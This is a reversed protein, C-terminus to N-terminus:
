IDRAPNGAVKSAGPISRVVNSGLGVLSLKGITVGNIVSTGSGIYCNEEINTNGALTVNSGVLCYDRVNSDHHIVTNPLICIHNGLICNSTLVVGAMILCNFGIKSLVSVNASPHIVTAFRENKLGLGSIIESRRSYSQPNGPVALVMASKYKEFASRPMIEFGQLNQGQKEANDDVFGIFHYEKGLCSLAELGNGGYPFILLDKKV